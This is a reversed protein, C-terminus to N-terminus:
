RVHDKQEIRTQQHVIPTLTPLRPASVLQMAIEDKCSHFGREAM